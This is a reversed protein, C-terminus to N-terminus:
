FWGGGEEDAWRRRVPHSQSRPKSMLVGEGRRGRPRVVEGVERLTLVKSELQSHAETPM